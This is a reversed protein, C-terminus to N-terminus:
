TEHVPAVCAQEYVSKWEDSGDDEVRVLNVGPIFAPLDGAGFADWMQQAHTFYSKSGSAWDIRLLLGSASPPEWPTRCTM